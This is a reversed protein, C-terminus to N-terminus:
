RAYPPENGPKWKINCGISPRQNEDLPSGALLADCARRLDEGTVPISNGPRSADFQGRYVLRRARDYVFFDPTCAATYAKAVEQTKDVLYPFAYGASIAEEKMLEPRDGAFKEQTFDNANIGVIALGKARYEQSFAALVSRIHKVYPCHNCLFIVVLGPADRFDQLKWKKGTADELEFDPALSRLPAMTSPTLAM